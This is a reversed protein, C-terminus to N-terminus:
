IQRIIPKGIHEPIWIALTPVDDFLTDRINLMHIQITLMKSDKIESDGPYIAPGTKPNRGQFLKKVEDNANLARTRSPWEALTLASMLYVICQEDPHQQVYEKLIGRLSSYSASDTSRTYKIKNLLLELCEKLSLKACLHKQENTREPHGSSEIFHTKMVGLFESVSIRNTEILSETDHPASIRIWQNSFNDRDLFDFLINNRTLNLMSDLVTERNWRNLDLNNIDFNALRNRIDEEHEVIHSYSDITVQDLFVRCYGLYKRKYGYFRARQLITDVSGVGINRPMYTVTLGEVTFGRDMSQGGVLIWAYSDQWKIQPTMGQRSNVEIIPTYQITHVLHVDTLDEFSPLNNVTLKLEEYTGRFENLLEAKEEIYDGSLLRKWSNRISTLWSLYTAHDGQLRSPHVLMSRNKQGPAKYSNLVTGAVVGLYFFRLASLLSEPPSFLPHTVSGIETPPIERILQQPNKFFEKGGTYEEGPTLLKIFNPSLRDLINIFLNAQPTATYQLFTHHPLINRLEYIRRYITSVETESLQEIDFGNRAAWRARTNLSAQDGEDDIILTPTSKLNLRELLLKLNNLHSGHKMVTILITKCRDNPFTPDAWQDLINSITSFDETTSPNTVQSWVQEFGYRADIRLDERVRDTSQTLLNISIGGLIIIIRYENDRAMATLTTFSLTKGSQVYGIVIGTDQNQSKSPDGCRGMIQLTEDRVQKGSDSLSGDNNTFKKARLLNLTEDGVFPIWGNVQSSNIEITESM